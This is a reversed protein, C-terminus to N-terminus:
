KAAEKAIKRYLRTIIMGATAAHNAIDGLDAGTEKDDTLPMFALASNELSTCQSKMTMLSQAIEKLTSAAVNEFPNAM